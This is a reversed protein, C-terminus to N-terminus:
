LSLWEIELQSEDAVQSWVLGSIPRARLGPESGMTGSSAWQRGLAAVVCEGICASGATDNSVRLTVVRCVADFPRHEPPSVLVSYQCPGRSGSAAVTGNSTSLTAPPVDTTTSCALSSALLAHVLVTRVRPTV